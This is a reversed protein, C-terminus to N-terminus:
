SNTKFYLRFPVSKLLSQILLSLQCVCKASPSQSSAPKIRTRVKSLACGLDWWLWCSVGVLVYLHLVLMVSFVNVLWLGPGVEVQALLFWTYSWKLAGSANYLDLVPVFHSWLWARVSFHTIIEIINTGLHHNDLKLSLCALDKRGQPVPRSHTHRHTHTHSILLSLLCWVWALHLSVLYCIFMFLDNIDTVVRSKKHAKYYSRPCFPQVFGGLEYTRWSSMWRQGPGLSSTNSM